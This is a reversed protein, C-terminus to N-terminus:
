PLNQEIKDLRTIVRKIVDSYSERPIIKMSIIKDRLENPILITTFNPNTM